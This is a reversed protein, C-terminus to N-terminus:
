KTMREFIQNLSRTESRIEFVEVQSELVVQTWRDYFDPPDLLTLVVTDSDPEVEFGRILDGDLLYRVLVNPRDCRITVRESWTHLDNRYM